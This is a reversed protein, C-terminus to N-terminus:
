ASKLEDLFDQSAKSLEKKNKKNKKVSQEIPAKILRCLEDKDDTEIAEMIKEAENYHQTIFSKIQSNFYAKLLTNSTYHKLGIHFLPLKNKILFKKLSRMDDYGTLIRLESIEILDDM